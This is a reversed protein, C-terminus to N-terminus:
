SAKGTSGEGHKGKLFDKDEGDLIKAKIENLHTRFDSGAKPKYTQRNARKKNTGPQQHNDNSEEDDENDDDDDDSDWSEDDSEHDSEEEEDQVNVGTTVGAAESLLELGKEQNTLDQERRERLEVQIRELRDTAAKEKADAAAKEEAQTTAVPPEKSSGHFSTLKSTGKAKANPRGAGKRSGGHHNTSVTKTEDAVRNVFATVKQARPSM